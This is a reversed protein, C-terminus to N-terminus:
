NSKKLQLHLLNYFEFEPLTCRVTESNTQVAVVRAKQWPNLVRANQVTWGAPLRLRIALPAPRISSQDGGQIPAAYRVAHVLMDGKQGQWREYVATRCDRAQEEGAVSPSYGLWQELIRALKHEQERDVPKKAIEELRANFPDPELLDLADVLRMTREPLLQAMSEVHLVRRSAVDDTTSHRESLFLRAAASRPQALLDCAGCEGASIIHGGQALYQRLGKLAEDPLYQLNPIILISYAGLKELASLSEKPVIALPIHAAMLAYGTALAQRLHDDHGYDLEDYSMVLGINASQRFGHFLESNQSYFSRWQKRIEPYAVGPQVFAGGGGAACEAYGLEVHRRSSGYSIIVPRVDISLGYLYQLLYGFVDNPSFYGAPHAEEFMMSRSARSWVPASKGSRARGAAGRVRSIAGWNPVAFFDKKYLRGVTTMEATFRSVSNQWFQTTAAQQLREKPSATLSFEAPALTEQSGFNAALVEPTYHQSLYAPFQEQCLDHHCEMICDDIFIGDYGSEAILRVVAKQYNEWAPENLCPQYRWMPYNPEPEWPAFTRREIQMWQEPTRGPKEGLGLPAAYEQWHDYFNFFGSRKEHDGGLISPNIYCFIQQVGAEHLSRIFRKLELRRDLIERAPVLKPKWGSYDATPGFISNLPVCHGVHLLDPPAQRIAALFAPDHVIEKGYSLIYTRPITTVGAQDAVAPGFEAAYLPWVLLLLWYRM